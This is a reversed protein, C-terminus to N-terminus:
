VYLICFMTCHSVRTVKRGVVDMREQDNESHSHGNIGGDENGNVLAGNLKSAAISKEGSEHVINNCTSLAPRIMLQVIDNLGVDYDFLTHGDELQSFSITNSNYCKKHYTLIYLMTHQEHM